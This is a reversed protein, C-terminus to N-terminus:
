WVLLLYISSSWMINVDEKYHCQIDNYKTQGYYKLYKTCALAAMNDYHVLIRWKCSDYCKPELLM